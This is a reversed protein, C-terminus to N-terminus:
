SAAEWEVDLAATPDEYHVISGRLTDLPARAIPRYPRVEVTPKGHDTVVLSEGSVEVQRFFELAKAKFVSKPVLNKEM